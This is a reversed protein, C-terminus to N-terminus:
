FVELKLYKKPNAKVDQILAKLSEVSERAEVYLRDDNVLKGLSGDGREIKRTVNQVSARLSDLRGAFRDLKEATSGFHDLTRQLQAERDATLAKATRSAAAFNGITEDLARRNLRITANLEASMERINRITAALDGDRNMSGTVADLQKALNQVTATVDGLSAMVEGMGLEYVGRITDRPSYAGGTTKLDVAIVKEGMLGVNRIAVQSDRTLTIDDSLALEVLVYDAVLKMSEVAGKRIGNVQIEDSEGLGGTQDFRVLWVRNKQAFSFEKLWTVGWLMVGLAVLVMIGVQIEQRRRAKM